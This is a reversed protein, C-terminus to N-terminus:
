PPPDQRPRVATPLRRICTGDTQRMKEGLATQVHRGAVGADTGDITQPRVEWSQLGRRRSFPTEVILGDTQGRDELLRGRVTENQEIFHERARTRDFGKSECVVGNTAQTEKARSGDVHRVEM